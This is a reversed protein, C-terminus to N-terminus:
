CITSDLCSCSSSVFPMRKWRYHVGNLVFRFLDRYHPHLLVHLYAKKIDLKVMYYGQKVMSPLNKIGEMKFSQKAIYTNFKKLDLVSRLLNTGPKPVTFVNLISNSTSARHCRRSALRTSGKLHVGVKSGRSNIDTNPQAGTQLKTTRPGKICQSVRSLLKSSGM